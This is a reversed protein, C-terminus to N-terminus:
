EELETLLASYYAANEGISDLNNFDIENLAGVLPALDMGAVKAQEAKLTSASILQPRNGRVAEIYNKLLRYKSEDVSDKSTSTEAEKKSGGKRYDDLNYVQASETM